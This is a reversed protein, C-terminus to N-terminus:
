FLKAEQLSIPLKELNYQPDFANGYIKEPPEIKNEWGYTIALVIEELVKNLDADSSPVRHEIRRLSPIISPVRLAVTRNNGGWSVTNPSDMSNVIRKYGEETPVFYKMSSQMKNCLGGLAYILYKSEHDADKAFLNKGDQYASINIQMSNGPLNEFPKPNFFLQLNHHSSFDKIINKISNVIHILLKVDHMPYIKIEFQNQEIEQDIFARSHKKSIIENLEELMFSELFKIYFEIELGFNFIIRKIKFIESLIQELKTLKM